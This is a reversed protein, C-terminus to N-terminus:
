KAAPSAQPATWAKYDADSVSSLKRLFAVVLWLEDDKAGAGAFSPMGTMNIGNKIIWFLQSPTAETVLDSPPQDQAYRVISNARVKGLAWKVVGPDEQSAAVSYFGGFFYVGAAVAFFIALLGIVALIRM